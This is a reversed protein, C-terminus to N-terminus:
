SQACVCVGYSCCLWALLVRLSGRACKASVVFSGLAEERRYTDATRQSADAVIPNGRDFVLVANNAELSYYSRGDRETSWHVGGGQLGITNRLGALSAVAIADLDMFVGGFKYLLAQRSAGLLLGVTRPEEVAWDGLGPAGKTVVGFSTPVFHVNNLVTLDAATLSVNITASSGYLLVVVNRDPHLTAAAEISCRSVASLFPVNALEFFICARQCPGHEASESSAHRSGSHSRRGTASTAATMLGRAATGSATGDTGNFAPGCLQELRELSTRAERLPWCQSASASARPPLRTGGAAGAAEGDVGDRSGLVSSSGGGWDGNAASTLTSRAFSASDSRLSSAAAACVLVVAALAASSARPRTRVIGICRRAAGAPRSSTPVDGALVPM